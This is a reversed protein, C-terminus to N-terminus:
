NSCALQGLQHCDGGNEDKEKCGFEIGTLGILPALSRSASKEFVQNMRCEGELGSSKVVVSMINWPSSMLKSQSLQGYELNCLVRASIIKMGKPCRLKKLCGNNSSQALCEFNIIEYPSQNKCQFPTRLIVGDECYASQGICRPYGNESDNFLEVSQGHQIYASPFANKVFCGSRPWSVSGRSPRSTYNVSQNGGVIFPKDSMRIMITPRLKYIQNDLIITNKVHDNNDVSSGWPFGKDLDCYPRNGNRSAVWIAPPPGKAKDVEAFFNWVDKWTEKFFSPDDSMKNYYFINNIIKNRNPLQHRITGGEGCNRYIFIGGNNLGSFYNGTVVNEASGDIALIERTNSYVDFDNNQILNKGSETDLYIATSDLKGKFKSNKVVSHTVGPSFYLLVRGLSEIEVNEITIHHPAAAQARETHKDDLRSSVKLLEGEGSGSMGSIQIRGKVHCNRISINSPVSWDGSPLKKSRVYIQIVPSNPKSGDILAGRCDLIAKSSSEGEFIIGKSLVDSKNLILSCNLKIDNKEKTAAELALAKQAASCEPLPSLLPSSMEFAHVTPLLCALLIFYHCFLHFSKSLVM